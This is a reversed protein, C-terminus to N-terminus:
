EKYVESFEKPIFCGIPIIASEEIAATIMEENFVEGREKARAREEDQKQKLYVNILMNAREASTSNVVFQFFENREDGEKDVTVIKSNIKYWKKMTREEQEKEREEEDVQMALSELFEDASIKGSCFDNEFSYKLGKLKDLLVICSEFEKVMLIDFMGEFNLEIYDKIIIIANEVGTAYLLVKCKKDGISVQAMYPYLRENKMEYCARRQNSVEVENVSGEAMYFRIKALNDQTILTGKDLLMESREIPVVDGTDEDMFTETWTRCLRNVLYRNLMKKPDNTFYREETKRSQIMEGMSVEEDLNVWRIGISVTMWIRM